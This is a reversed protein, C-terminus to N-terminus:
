AAHFTKAGLRGFDGIAALCALIRGTARGDGYPNVFATADKTEASAVAALIADPEAACTLVSPGRLRGKQRGGVDISATGLSPVESLASSSNGIVADVHRATSLYRTAGLNEFFSANGHGAAFASIAKRFDAGGSDSNPATFILGCSPDLRGLADLLATLESMGNDAKTTVPHFTVLYNRRRFAIGLERELDARALLPQGLILDVATSGVPHVFAPDEGMRVIREASEANTPFHIHAMKTMCHRMVDDISGESVDGGCLHAIPIRLLTAAAAAAFIEFRDGLLVLLDPRMDKFADTFGGVGRGVAHGSEQRSPPGDFIPIRVDIGLGDAAILDATMGFSRELHTGTVAVRLEFAEHAAIGRMVPLLHGYDARGGTVVCIQSRKAM